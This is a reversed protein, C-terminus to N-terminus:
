QETTPKVPSLFSPSSILIFIPLTRDRRRTGKPKIHIDTKRSLHQRTYGIIDFPEMLLPELM